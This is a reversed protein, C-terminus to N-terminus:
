GGADLDLLTVLRPDATACLLLLAPNPDHDRVSRLDEQYGQAKEAVARVFAWADEEYTTDPDYWDVYHKTWSQFVLDYKEADTLGERRMIGLLTAAEIVFREKFVNNAM